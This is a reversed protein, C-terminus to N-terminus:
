QFTGAPELCFSFHPSIPISGGSPHQYLKVGQTPRADERAPEDAAESWWVTDRDGFRVGQAFGPEPGTKQGKVQASDSLTFEAPTSHTHQCAMMENRAGAVRVLAVLTLEVASFDFAADGPKATEAVAMDVGEEGLLLQFSFEVRDRRQRCVRVHGPEHCPDTRPWRMKAGDAVGRVRLAFGATALRAESLPAGRPQTRVPGIAATALFHGWGAM